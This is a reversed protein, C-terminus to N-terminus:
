KSARPPQRAQDFARSEPDRGTPTRPNLDRGGCWDLNEFDNKALLYGRLLRNLLRSLSYGRRLAEDVLEQDLTVHVRIKKSKEDKARTNSNRKRTAVKSVKVWWKYLQSEVIYFKANNLILIYLGLM